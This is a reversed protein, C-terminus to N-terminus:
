ITAVINAMPAAIETVLYDARDLARVDVCLRGKVKEIPGTGTEDLIPLYQVVVNMTSRLITRRLTNTLAALHVGSFTQKVLLSKDEGEM